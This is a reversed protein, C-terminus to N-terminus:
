SIGDNLKCIKMVECVSKWLVDVNATVGDQEINGINMMKLYPIDPYKELLYKGYEDDACYFFMAMSLPKELYKENPLNRDLIFHIQKCKFLNYSISDALTCQEFGALNFTILLDVDKLKQDCIIGEERFVEVLAGRMVNQLKSQLDAIRKKFKNNERCIILIKEIKQM